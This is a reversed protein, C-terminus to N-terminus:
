IQLRRLRPDPESHAWLTDFDENLRHVEVPAHLCLHGTYHTPNPNYLVASEDGTLFERHPTEIERTLRRLEMHSQLKQCTEVLRHHHVSIHDTDIVLVQVSAQPHSLVLQRVANCFEDRDYLAPDLHHSLLRLKRHSHEVLERAATAFDEANALPRYQRLEEDIPEPTPGTQPRTYQTLKILMPVHAVGAEIHEEGTIAFGNDEFFGVAPLPSSVQLQGFHQGIAYKILARLLASGVGQRRYNSHVAVYNLRDASLRLAGMPAGKSTFAIWHCAGSDEADTIQAETYGLEEVLVAYRLTLIAERSSRWDSQEIDIAFFDIPDTM